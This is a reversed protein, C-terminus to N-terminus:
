LLGMDVLDVSNVDKINNLLQEVEDGGGSRDDLIVSVELAVLGFAIPKEEINNLKVEAPLSSRITEKMEDLNVEVGTPMVKFIMMVEGM